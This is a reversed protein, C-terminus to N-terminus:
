RSGFELGLMTSLADQFAEDEQESETTDQKIDTSSDRTGLDKISIEDKIRLCQIQEELKQTQRDREDGSHPEELTPRVMNFPIIDYGEDDCFKTPTTENVCVDLTALIQIWELPELLEELFPEPVYDSDEYSRDGKWEKKDQSNCESAGCAWLDAQNPRLWSTLSTEGVTSSDFDEVPTKNVDRYSHNLMNIRTTNGLHRLYIYNYGWDQLMKMQRMFPRGLIVDYNNKTGFDVVAFTREYEIGCSSVVIQELLGIPREIHGDALQLKLRTQCLAPPM